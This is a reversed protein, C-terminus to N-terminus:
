VRGTMNYPLANANCDNMYTLSSEPHMIVRAKNKEHTAVLHEVVVSAQM